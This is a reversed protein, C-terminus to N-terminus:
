CVLETIGKPLKSDANITYSSCDFSGMIIVNSFDPLPKKKGNEMVVDSKILLPHASNFKGYPLATMDVSIHETVDGSFITADYFKTKAM